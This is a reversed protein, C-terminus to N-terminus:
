ELFNVQFALQELQVAVDVANVAVGRPVSLSVSAFNLLGRIGAAILQDAVDQASDAPVALISLKADHQQAVAAIESLPKVTFAGLKRGVKAPDNDFVAVVEFGKAGFGRYASLAKGINGAGVLLVNWTRDTGLIKRLQQILDEVRYGIGPHGFQGFYALDKRVQADTLRLSEGLQRSSITRRGKRDFAELQRLYLSLRRVAPNPISEPRSPEM